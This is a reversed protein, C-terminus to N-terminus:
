SKLENIFSMDAKEIYKMIMDTSKWGGVLIIQPLSAGYQWSPGTSLWRKPKGQIKLIIPTL